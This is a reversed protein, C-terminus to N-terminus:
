PRRDGEQSLVADIEEPSMDEVQALLQEIQGEDVIRVLLTETLKSVSGMFLEVIPVNVSLKKEIQNKLEVVMISDMGLSTFTMKTDLRAPDLGLVRATAERLYDELRLHRDVPEAILLDLLLTDTSQDDEAFGNQAAAEPVVDALLPSAAMRGWDASVVLAQAARLTHIRELAQLAQHPRM